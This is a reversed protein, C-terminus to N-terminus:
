FPSVYGKTVSQYFAYVAIGITYYILVQYKTNPAPCNSTVQWSTIGM